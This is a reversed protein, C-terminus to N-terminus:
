KETCNKFLVSIKTGKGPTSKILLKGELTDIRQKINSLGIGKDKQKNIIKPDFGKGDDTVVIILQQEIIELEVVINKAKAHKVANSLIEQICRYASSEIVELFRNSKINSKIKISTENNVKQYNGVLNNVSHELGYQTLSPPMINHSVFRTEQTADNLLKKGTKFITYTEEDLQDKVLSDLGNFYMNAAAISQGVGDHLDQALRHRENEEAHIITKIKDQELKKLETIDQATGKSITAEGKENFETECKERVHKITGNPTIIRHDITYPKKNKLHASLAKEFVDVDEPHITSLFSEYTSGFKEL